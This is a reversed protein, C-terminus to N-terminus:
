KEPGNAMSEVNRLMEAAGVHDVSGLHHPNIEVAKTLDEIARAHRNLKVYVLARNYCTNADEANLKLSETYDAIANEYDGAGFYAHGRNHYLAALYEYTKKSGSYTEVSKSCLAIANSYKSVAEHYEGARLFDDAELASPDCKFNRSHTMSHDEYPQYIRDGNSRTLWHFPVDADSVVHTVPVADTAPVPRALRNCGSTGVSCALILLGSISYRRALQRMNAM